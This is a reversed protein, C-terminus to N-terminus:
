KFDSLQWKIHDFMHNILDALNKFWDRESRYSEWDFTANVSWEFLWKKDKKLKVKVIWESDNKKFKNLYNDLKTSINENVIRDVVEKSDKLDDSVNTNVQLNM